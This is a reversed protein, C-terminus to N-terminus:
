HGSKCTNWHPWFSRQHGEQLDHHGLDMCTPLGKMPLCCCVWFLEIVQKHFVQAETWIQWIWILFPQQSRSFSTLTLSTMHYTPRALSLWKPYQFPHQQWFGNFPLCIKKGNSYMAFTFKSRYFGSLLDCHGLEIIPLLWDGLTDISWM